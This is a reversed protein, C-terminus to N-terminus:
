ERNKVMRVGRRADERFYEVEDVSERILYVGFGGERTGDFVPPPVAEPDFDRGHHALSVIVRDPDVEVTMEIPRGAEGGYAHLVVNAAAEALALELRGLAEAGADPGWVRACADRVMARMATLERVDSRFERTVREM